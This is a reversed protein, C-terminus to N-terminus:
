TDRRARLQVGRLYRRLFFAPVQAAGAHIRPSRTGARSDSRRPLAGTYTVAGENHRIASPSHRLSRSLARDWILRELQYVRRQLDRLWPPATIGRVRNTCKQAAASKRHAMGAAKAWAGYGLWCILIMQGNGAPPPVSRVDRSSPSCSALLRPCGNTTSFRVPALPM